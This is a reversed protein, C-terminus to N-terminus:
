PRPPPPIARMRMRNKYIIDKNYGGDGGFTGYTGGFPGLHGNIKENAYGEMQKRNQWFLLGICFALLFCLLCFSISHTKM